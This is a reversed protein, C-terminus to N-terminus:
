SPSIVVALSGRKALATHIALASAATSMGVQRGKLAITPRAETLLAVQHDMPEFGFAAQSTEVASAPVDGDPEDDAVEGPEAPTRAKGRTSMEPLQRRLYRKLSEEPVGFQQAISKVTKGSARLAVMADALPHDELIQQRPM